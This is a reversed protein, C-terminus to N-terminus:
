AWGLVLWRVGVDDDDGDALLLANRQRRAEETYRNSQPTRARKSPSTFPSHAGDGM